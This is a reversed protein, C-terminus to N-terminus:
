VHRQWRAEADDAKAALLALEADTLDRGEAKAQEIMRRLAALDESIAAITTLLRLAVDAAKIINSPTM